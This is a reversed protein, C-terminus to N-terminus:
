LCITRSDKARVLDKVKREVKITEFRGLSRFDNSQKVVIESVNLSLNDLQLYWQFQM